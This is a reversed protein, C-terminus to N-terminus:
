KTLPKLKDPLVKLLFTKARTVEELKSCLESLYINRNWEHSIPIRSTGQRIDFNRNRKKRHQMSQAFNSWNCCCKQWLHLVIHQVKTLFYTAFSGIKCLKHCKSFSCKCSEGLLSIFYWWTGLVYKATQYCWLQAVRVSIWENMVLVWSHLKLKCSHSNGVVYPYLRSWVSSVTIHIDLNM